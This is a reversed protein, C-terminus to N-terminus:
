KKRGVFATIGGEVAGGAFYFIVIWGFAEGLTDINRTALAAMVPDRGLLISGMDIITLLIHILVFPIGVMLAVLRQAIKFPEYAKMMKLWWMKKEQDTFVLADAANIGADIVKSDGFLKAIIKRM